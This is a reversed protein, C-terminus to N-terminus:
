LNRALTRGSEKVLFPRGDGGSYVSGEPDAAIIQISPNKEKPIEGRRMTDWRTEREPSLILSKGKPKNGYRLGTTLYHAHPNTQNAYQNPRFSDPTEKSLREATSYYSRPDDPEVDVPM